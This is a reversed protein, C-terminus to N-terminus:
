ASQKVQSIDLSILVFSIANTIYANVGVYMVPGDILITASDFGGPAGTSSAIIKNNYYQSMKTGLFVLASGASIDSVAQGVAYNDFANALDVAIFHQCYMVQLSNLVFNADTGYTTQDSVWRFGGTQPAELTLLGSLLADELQSDNRPSFGTPNVLGTVNAFKRSISRYLGVAQMGAAVCAAYWPQYQTNVGTLSVAKVDQFCLAVLSSALSQAQSKANTFTGKFSCVGLRHKMKKPVSMAICHSKTYANIADITYTSSPDTLAAAIDTTADRSFLPVVFNTTINALADIATNFAAGTTGALTGGSLYTSATTAEPLGTLGYVTGATSDVVSSGSMAQAFDYADKKIVCPYASAVTSTACTYTGQDMVSPALFGVANTAVECAYGTQANIYNALNQLNAFDAYTLSLNAGLGGSVTFAMYDSGVVLSATTGLYGVHLAENGGVAVYSEQTSDSARNVNVTAEYQTGDVVVPAVATSLFSASTTTGLEYFTTALSTTGENDVIEMIAEQGNIWPRLIKIDADPSSTVTASAVNVPSGNSLRSAVLYASSTVNNVATVTYWGLNASGAGVIASAAPIYVSDGARPAAAGTGFIATGSAINLRLSSGSVTVSVGSGTLSVLSSRNMGAMNTFKLPSYVQLDNTVTASFAASITAPTTLSVAANNALKTGTLIASNTSNSVATIVYAGLNRGGTSGFVSTASAGYLGTTPLIMLDGVAATADFVSVGVLALAVSSGTATLTGTVSALSTAVSRDIGGNVLFDLSSLNAAVTTPTQNASITGTVQAAGQLRYKILASTGATPVPIYSFTGTTPAVAATATAVDWYIQNGLVGESQAELTAYTGGITPMASSGAVSANTKYLYIRTVSGTILPDNSPSALAKFADVLNGSGYKAIVSGIEGPGYWNDEIDEGTASTAPGASAEGVITVIGSVGLGTAPTRINTRTRAGPIVLNGFGSANVQIAM